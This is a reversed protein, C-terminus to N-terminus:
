KQYIDWIHKIIIFPHITSTEISSSLYPPNAFTPQWTLYRTAANSSKDIMRETISQNSHGEPYKGKLIRLVNFQAPSISYPKLIKVFESNLWSSTFHINIVLKQYESEFPKTQKIEDEIKM